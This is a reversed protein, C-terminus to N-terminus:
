IDKLRLKTANPLRPNSLLQALSYEVFHRLVDTPALDGVIQRAEKELEAQRKEFEEQKMGRAKILLTIVQDNVREAKAADLGAVLNSVEEAIEERKEKWESAKLTRVRVLAETLVDLPDSIYNAYLAIYDTVQSVKLQRLVEPARRRAADTIDFWDDLDPNESEHLQDLQEELDAIAQENRAEALAQHLELLANRYEKSATGKRERPKAATERALKDLLRIQETTMQWAHIERLAEVQLSLDSVSLDAAKKDQATGGSPLLGAALLAFGVSAIRMTM